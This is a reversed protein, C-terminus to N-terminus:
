LLKELKIYLREWLNVGVTSDSILDYLEQAEELTEITVVIPKWTLNQTEIKM